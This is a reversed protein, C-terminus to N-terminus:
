VPLLCDGNVTALHWGYITTDKVLRWKRSDELRSAYHALQQWTRFRRHIPLDFVTGNYSPDDLLRLTYVYVM